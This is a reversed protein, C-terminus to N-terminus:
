IILRTNLTVWAGLSHWCAMSETTKWSDMPGRSGSNRKRHIRNTILVWIRLKEKRPFSQAVTGLMQAFYRQRPSWSWTQQADPMYLMARLVPQTKGRCNQPLVSLRESSKRAKRPSCWRTWGSSANRSPCATTKRRSVTWSRLNRLSTKQWLSHWKMGQSTKLHIMHKGGHGDFVGFIAVGDGIDMSSIHADEMSRRWGQM